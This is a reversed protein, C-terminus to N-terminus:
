APAVPVVRGQAPIRQQELGLALLWVVQPNRPLAQPPPPLCVGGVTVDRIGFASGCAHGRCRERSQWHRAHSGPRFHRTEAQGRGGRKYGRGGRKYGRGVRCLGVWRVMEPAPRGLPRRREESGEGRSGEGAGMEEKLVTVHPALAPGAPVPVAPPDPNPRLM